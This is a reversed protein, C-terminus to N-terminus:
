RWAKFFDFFRKTKASLVYIFIYWILVCLYLFNVASTIVDVYLFIRPLILMLTLASPFFIISFLSTTLWNKTFLLFLQKIVKFFWLGRKKFLRLVQQSFGALFSRPLILQDIDSLIFVPGHYKILTFRNFSVLSTMSHNLFMPFLCFCSNMKKKSM